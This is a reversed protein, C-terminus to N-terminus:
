VHKCNDLVLFTYITQSFIIHLRGLIPKMKIFICFRENRLIGENSKTERMM